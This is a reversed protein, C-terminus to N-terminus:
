NIEDDFENDDPKEQLLKVYKNCDLEIGIDESYIFTAEKDFDIDPDDEVRKMFDLYFPRAMVGGQGDSISLFRIWPYEGGVWTGVVLNPNLGVFWGDVHDDTTGTKGGFESELAYHVTSSAYKLMDIMADCFRKKLARKQVIQAAYIENDFKDTIRKVMIPQSHLGGNALTTYASTLEFASLNPTGLVISPVEPIKNKGIGMNEATNVIQKVSGIDRVLWTSVSNLSQKLGEKLTIDEGSFTGDSNKPSWSTMLGFDADGAPITYQIDKVPFCPSYGNMMATTYLFPKFTSGVQRESTVHDYKWHDYDIGGVWAKVYGTQPEIAISGLQLQRAMHKISDIPSYFRKVPGDLSYVYMERRQNFVEDVKSELSNWRELLEPWFESSLIEQYTKLQQQSIFDNQRLETFYKSDGEGRMMRRIDANWLRSNEIDSSIKDIIPSLVEKRLSQYRPTDEIARNLQANRVAMQRQDARYTWPDIDEWVTEYRKQVKSMHSKMAAEAHIQYRSDITTYIKLGDLDLDYKHGGPKSIGEKELLDNIYKKLEAMFYAAIGSYNEGRNFNSLDLSQNKLLDYKDDEIFGRKRMQSLVINRQITAEEPNIKPNYYYPNKLMAVFMASESVSLDKQNKGFYVQAAAGIGNANYIFDFKNLFMAIIEEKTYRREFEVAIVWEQMKQWIRRVVNRSRLPTFFQKALQQTITSAGGRSGLFAVARMTGRADIGSHSYFRHDESALLANILNPSLDQFAVWQRNKRFYRDLEILDESYVISAEEFKPNELDSTDPMKTNAVYAFLSIFTVLGLVIALWVCIIISKYSVKGFLKNEM